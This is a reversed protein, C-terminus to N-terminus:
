FYCPTLIFLSIHYNEFTYMLLYDFQAVTIAIVFVLVKPLSFIEVLLKLVILQLHHRHEIRCGKDLNWWGKSLALHTVSLNASILLNSLYQWILSKPRLPFHYNMALILVMLILVLLNDFTGDAILLLLM